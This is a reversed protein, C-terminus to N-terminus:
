RFLLLAWKIWEPIDSAFLGSYLFISIAVSGFATVVVLISAVAGLIEARRRSRRMRKDFDNMMTRKGHKRFAAAMPASQM